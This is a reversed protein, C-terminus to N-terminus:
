QRQKVPTLAPCGVRHVVLDRTGLPTCAPFPILHRHPSQAPLAAHKGAPIRMIGAVAPQTVYPVGIIDKEPEAPRLGFGHPDLMRKPPEQALFEVQLQRVRIRSYYPSVPAFIATPARNVQSSRAQSFM